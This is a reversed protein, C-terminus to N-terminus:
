GMVVKELEKFDKVWYKPNTGPQFKRPGWTLLACDIGSNSAFIYDITNDGVYLVKSKDKINFHKLAIETGSPDPKSAPLDDSGLFYDIVGDLRILELTLAANHSNKNTIVGVKLGNKIFSKITEFVGEYETIFGRYCERSIRKYAPFIEEIPYDPFEKLLTERIPPGSFYLLEEDKRYITPKYVKYMRHFTEVIMSDTNAITGDMDFLVLDYNPM